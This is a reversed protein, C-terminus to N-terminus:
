VNFAPRKKKEQRSPNFFRLAIASIIFATTPIM